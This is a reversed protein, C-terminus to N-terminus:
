AIIEVRSGGTAEKKVVIQKDIREKLESVHSIIGVLRNGETLDALAKMAQELSEEDLSGFGEDVFMTDLQIGGASSQIEESLGLALSLSAKFAEGGSLSKVSRETGSYYDMVNIELGSQSRNNGADECRKLKYQGGSMILLRESARDLIRDFYNMQVYTELMIKEKGSINGNATNSLAKMWSWKKELANATEFGKEVHEQIDKNTTLKTSLSIKKDLLANKEETRQLYAEKLPELDTKETNDGLKDSVSKIVASIEGVAKDCANYDERAKELAKEMEVIKTELKRISDSAEKESHFRLKVDLEAIQKELESKIAANSSQALKLSNIENKAEELEAEEQPISQDLEEKRNMQNGITELKKQIGSLKEKLEEKKAKLLEPIIEEPQTEKFVKIVQKEVNGQINELTGKASGAALSKEEMVSAAEEAATKSEELEEKTPAKDSLHAICPHEKSGCVPCPEGEKLSQGLIGAQEDLYAKYNAEYIKKKEEAEEAKKKYSDQLKKLNRKATGCAEWEKELSLLEKQEAYYSQEEAELRAKNEGANELNKREERKEKLQKEKDEATEKKESLNEKLNELDTVVKNHETRKEDLAKYEPIEAKIAAIEEGLKRREPEKEEEKEQIEKREKLEKQRERLEQKKKELNEIERNRTEAEDFVRKIEELKIEVTQLEQNTEKELVEDREMIRGILELIKEVSLEDNQAQEVEVEFLDAEELLIGGIYQSISRKAEDYQDKLKSSEGKLREQLKYFNETHFIKQFIKKREDTPALLLKLFDGQAIMAIQTFQNRDIGILEEVAKTVDKVKSIVRGDPYQLTAEAKQTTFGEGKSKKREYDPNRKVIYIKGKYEFALEVETPTDPEAYQSRLMSIERNNGSAAGFLAYTIADFITTKGAGTDGTILYLGSKGLQNFDIVTKGAYPGFASMELKVPRM